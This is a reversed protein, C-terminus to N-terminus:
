KNNSLVRLGRIYNCCLGSYSIVGPKKLLLVVFFSSKVFSLIENLKSPQLCLCTLEYKNEFVLFYPSGDKISLLIQYSDRRVNPSIYYININWRPCFVFDRFSMDVWVERVLTSITEGIKPIFDKWGTNETGGHRAQVSRSRLPKTTCFRDLHFAAENEQLVIVVAVFWAISSSFIYEFSQRLLYAIANLKIHIMRTRWM